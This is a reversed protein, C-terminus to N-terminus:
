CLHLALRHPIGPSVYPRRGTCPSFVRVVFRAVPLHEKSVRCPEPFLRIHMYRNKEVSLYWNWIGLRFADSRRYSCPGFSEIRWQALRAITEVKSDSPNGVGASM